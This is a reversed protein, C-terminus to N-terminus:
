SSKRGLSAGAQFSIESLATLDARGRGSPQSGGMRRAQLVLAPWDWEGQLYFGALSPETQGPPAGLRSMERHQPGWGVNEWPEAYPPVSRAAGRGEEEPAIAPPANRLAEMPQQWRAESYPPEWAAPTHRAAETPEQGREESRPPEWATPANQALGWPVQQASVPQSRAGEVLPYHEDVTDSAGGPPIPAVNSQALRRFGVKTRLALDVRYFRAPNELRVYWSGAALAIEVEFWNSANAAEFHARTGSYFRLVPHARPGLRSFIRSVEEWDHAALEWYVHILHPNVPLLVVRTEEVRDPLEEGDVAAAETDDGAASVKEEVSQAEDPRAQSSAADPLFRKSEGLTQM